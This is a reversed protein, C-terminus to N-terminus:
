LFPPNGPRPLTMRDHRRYREGSGGFAKKVSEIVLPLDAAAVINNSLYSSLIQAILAKENPESM